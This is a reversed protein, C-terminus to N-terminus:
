KKELYIGRKPTSTIEGAKFEVHTDDYEIFGNMNHDLRGRLDGQKDYLEINRVTSWSDEYKIIKIEVGDVTSSSLENKTTECGVLSALGLMGIVLKEQIRKM